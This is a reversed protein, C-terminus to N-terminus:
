AQEQKQQEQEQFDLPSVLRFCAAVQVIYRLGRINKVSKPFYPHWNYTGGVGRFGRHLGEMPPCTNKQPYSQNVMRIGM